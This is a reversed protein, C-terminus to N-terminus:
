KKRSRKKQAAAAQRIMQTTRKFSSTVKEALALILNKKKRKIGESWATLKCQNGCSPCLRLYAGGVRRLKKVCEDCYPRGCHACEWVAHRGGHSLCAAHGDTLFEVPSLFPNEAARLTPISVAVARTDLVMEICGMQLTQGSHLVSQQIRQSDIYTGNTSGLDRVLVSDDAVDIECHADSIAPDDLLHDNAAARGFRNVGPRLEFVRPTGQAVSRVILQAM